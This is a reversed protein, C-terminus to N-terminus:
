LKGLSEDSFIRKSSHFSGGTQEANAAPKVAGDIVAVGKAVDRLWANADTQMDRISKAIEGGAEQIRHEYIGYTVKKIACSKVEPPVPDFPVTYRKGCYSDIEASVSAIVENVVDIDITEADDSTLQAMKEESIKSPCIDEFECYAVSDNM